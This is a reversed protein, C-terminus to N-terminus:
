ISVKFHPWIGKKGLYQDYEEMTVGYAKLGAEITFLGREFGKQISQCNRELEYSKDDFLEEGIHAAENFQQHDPFM